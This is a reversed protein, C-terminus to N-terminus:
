KSATCPVYPLKCIMQMVSCCVSCCVRCCLSCCIHNGNVNYLICTTIRLVCQMVSCCMRCCVGCCVSCCVACLLVFDVKISCLACITIQLNDAHCTEKLLRKHFESLTFSTRCICAYFQKSMTNPTLNRLRLGGICCVAVCQLVSCCVAVCQLM